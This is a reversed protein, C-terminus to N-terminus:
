TWDDTPRLALSVVALVEWAEIEGACFVSRLACDVYASACVVTNGEYTVRQGAAEEAGTFNDCFAYGM